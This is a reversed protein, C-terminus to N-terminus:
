LEICEIKSGNIRLGIVMDDSQDWNEGVHDCPKHNRLLLGGDDKKRVQYEIMDCCSESPPLSWVEYELEFKLNLGCCNIVDCMTLYIHKLRGNAKFSLYSNGRLKGISNLVLVELTYGELLGDLYNEAILQEPYNAPYFFYTVPPLKKGPKLSRLFIGLEEDTPKDGFDHIDIMKSLMM